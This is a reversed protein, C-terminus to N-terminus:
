MNWHQWVLWSRRLVIWSMGGSRAQVLFGTEDGDGADPDDGDCLRHFQALTGHAQREAAGVHEAAGHALLVAAGLAPKVQSGPGPPPPGRTM